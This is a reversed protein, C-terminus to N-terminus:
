INRNSYHQIVSHETILQPVPNPQQITSSANTNTAPKLDEM